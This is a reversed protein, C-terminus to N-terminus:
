LKTETEEMGFVTLLYNRDRTMSSQLLTLGVQKLENIIDVASFHLVRLLLVASGKELQVDHAGDEFQFRITVSTSLRIRVYRMMLKEDFGMEVEYLDKTLNLLDPVMRHGPSLEHSGPTPSFEFYRRSTETDPKNTCVLLANADMSGYVAKIPDALSRFNVSTDSGIPMKRTYVRGEVFRLM